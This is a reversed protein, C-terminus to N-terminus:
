TIHHQTLGQRAAVAPPLAPPPLALCPAPSSLLPPPPRPRLRLDASIAGNDKFGFLAPAYDPVLFSVVLNDPVGYRGPPPLVLFRM